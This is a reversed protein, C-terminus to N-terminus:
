KLIESLPPRTLVPSQDIAAARGGPNVCNPGTFIFYDDYRLEVPVDLSAGSLGIRGAPAVPLTFVARDGVRIAFTGDDYEELVLAISQNLGTSGSGDALLQWGNRYHFVGWFAGEPVIYYEVSYFESWDSNLGFVLGVAGQGAPIWTRIGAGSWNNWVDGRSVASWRNDERQQIFYQERDYGYAVLGHDAVPWGSAPNSFTDVFPGSCFGAMVVPAVAVYDNPALIQIRDPLVQALRNGPLAHFGRQHFYDGDWHAYGLRVLAGTAADHAEIIHSITPEYGWQIIIEDSDSSIIVDQHYVSEGEAKFDRITALTEADVQLTTGNTNPQRVLLFSGDPAVAVPGYGEAPLTEDLELVPTVGSIDFRRLVSQDVGPAIGTTYLTTGHIAPGVFGGGPHAFRLLREGTETDHIDIALTGDLILYLRNDPGGVAAMPTCTWWVEEPCTFPFTDLITLTATNMVAVLGDHEANAPKEAIYLRDGDPSLGLAAVPFPLDVLTEKLAPQTDIVTLTEAYEHGVYIRGAAPDVVHKTGVDGELILEGALAYQPIIGAPAASARDDAPTTTVLTVLIAVLLLFLAVILKRSPASM